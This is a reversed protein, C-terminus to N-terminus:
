KAARFSELWDAVAISSMVHKWNFALPSWHSLLMKPVIAKGREFLTDIM